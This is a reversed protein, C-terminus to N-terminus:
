YTLMEKFSQLRTKIQEASEVYQNNEIYLLPIGAEELEKRFVPYDFEEADCFSMQDFIVGDAHNERVMEILMPGRNKKLDHFFADGDQNSLRTAMRYCASGETGNLSRFQRSEQGLDDAVVAINLEDFAALIEPADLMVGTLVVRPGNFKGPPLANLRDTLERIMPTYSAKDMYYSAKIIYHRKTVNVVDPHAAAAKVFERMALRWDDYLACAKLVDEESAKVGKLEELQHLTDEFERAMYQRGAETKRQQVYSLRITPMDKLEICWNDGICKLHDCLLPIIVGDLMKYEGSMGLELNSRMLSCAFSQLYKDALKIQRSGGWLGVPLYGVAYVLEDPTYPPFCGILKKGTKAAENLITRKPHQGNEVLLEMLEEMRGM